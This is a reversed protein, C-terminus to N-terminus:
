KAELKDQIRDALDYTSRVEDFILLASALFLFAMLWAILKDM